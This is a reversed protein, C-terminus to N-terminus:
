KKLARFATVFRAADAISFNCLVETGNIKMNTFVPKGQDNTLRLAGDRYEVSRVNAVPVEVSKCGALREDHALDVFRRV